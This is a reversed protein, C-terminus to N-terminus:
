PTVFRYFRTLFNTAGADLYQLSGGSDAHNTTLNVWMVPPSLNTTAQVYYPQNPSGTGDLEITGDSLVRIDTIAPPASTTDTPMGIPRSVTSPM